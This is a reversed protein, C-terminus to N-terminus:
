KRSEVARGAEPRGSEVPGRGDGKSAPMGGSEFDVGGRREGQLGSGEGTVDIRKIGLERAWDRGPGALRQGNGGRDDRDDVCGDALAPVPSGRAFPPEAVALRGPTCREEVNAHRARRRM